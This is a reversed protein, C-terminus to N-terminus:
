SDLKSAPATSTECQRRRQRQGGCPFVTSGKPDEGHPNTGAPRDFALAPRKGVLRRARLRGCVGRTLGALRQHLAVLDEDAFPGPRSLIERAKGLWVVRVGDIVFAGGILPWDADIFCLVGHVPLPVVAEYGTLAAGVLEVQKHMATVMSTRDRRGVILKETRPRFLGGEM